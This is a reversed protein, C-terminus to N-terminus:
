LTEIRADQSNGHRHGYQADMFQPTKARNNMLREDPNLRDARPGVPVIVQRKGKSVSVSRAISVEIKPLPDVSGDPNIDEAEDHEDSLPMRTSEAPSAASKREVPSMIQDVKEKTADLPSLLSSPSNSHSSTPQSVLGATQIKLSPPAEQAPENGLTDQNATEPGPEQHTHCQTEPMEEAKRSSPEENREPLIPVPSVLCSEMHPEHSVPSKGPPPTEVHVRNEDATPTGTNLRTLSTQSRLFPSSGRPLIQSGRVKSAKNVQTSPFLTFSPSKSRSPSASRPQPPLLESPSESSEASPATIDNLTKSRRASSPSQDKPQDKGLLGGFMVSYRELQIDPIDVQLLPGPNRSKSGSAQQGTKVSLDRTGPKQQQDKTKAEIGPEIRPWSDCTGDDDKEPTRKNVPNNPQYDVSYSSGQLCCDNNVRVQYFPKSSASTLAHKAKFLGGIKRWKSSKRQLNSRKPKETNTTVLPPREQAKSPTSQSDALRPSGLAIGIENMGKENNTPSPVAEAPPVTIRFDFGPGSAQLKKNQTPRESTRPRQFDWYAVAQRPTAARDHSTANEVAQLDNRPLADTYNLVPSSITDSPQFARSKGVFVGRAM